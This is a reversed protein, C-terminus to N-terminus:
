GHMATVIRYGDAFPKCTRDVPPDPFAAESSIMYGYDIDSDEDPTAYAIQDFCEAGFMARRFGLLAPLEAYLAERVDSESNENALEPRGESTPHTAFGMGRPYVCVFLINRRSESHSRCVLPASDRIPITFGDFHQVIREAVERDSGCDVGMTYYIAM